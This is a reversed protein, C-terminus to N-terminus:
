SFLSILVVCCVFTCILFFSVLCSCPSKVVPLLQAVRAVFFAVFFPFPALSIFMSIGGYPISSAPLPFVFPYSFLSNQTLLRWPRGPYPVISFDPYLILIPFGGGGGCCVCCLVAVDEEAGGYCGEM